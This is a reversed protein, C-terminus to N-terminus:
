LFGGFDCVRMSTNVSLTWHQIFLLKIYPLNLRTKNTQVIIVNYM